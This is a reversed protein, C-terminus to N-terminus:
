SPQAAGAAATERPRLPSGEEVPLVGERDGEVIGRPGSPDHGQLTFVRDLEEDFMPEISALLLPAHTAVLTQVQASETQTVTAM